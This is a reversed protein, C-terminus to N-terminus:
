PFWTESITEKISGRSVDEGHVKVNMGQLESFVWASM